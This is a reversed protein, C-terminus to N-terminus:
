EWNVFSSVLACLNYLWNLTVVILHQTLIQVWIVRNWFELMKVVTKSSILVLTFVIFVLLRLFSPQNDINFASILYFFCCCYKSFLFAILSLLESNVLSKLLFLLKQGKSYVVLFTNLKRWTWDGFVYEVEELGLVSYLLNCCWYTAEFHKLIQLRLM